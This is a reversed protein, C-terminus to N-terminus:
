FPTNGAVPSGEEMLQIYVAPGAKHYAGYFHPQHSYLLPSANATGHLLRWMRKYRRMGKTGDYNFGTLIIGILKNGYAEAPSEFLVDISPRAYNVRADITFSITKDREIM